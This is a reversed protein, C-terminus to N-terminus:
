ILENDFIQQFNYLKRRDKEKNVDVNNVKNWNNKYETIKKFAESIPINNKKSIVQPVLYHFHAFKTQGATVYFIDSRKFNM